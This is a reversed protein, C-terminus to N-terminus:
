WYRGILAIRYSEQRFEAWNTTDAIVEDIRIKIGDGATRFNVQRWLKEAPAFSGGTPPGFGRSILLTTAPPVPAFPWFAMGDGRGPKINEPLKNIVIEIEFGGRCGGGRDIDSHRRIIRNKFGSRSDGHSPVYSIRGGVRDDVRNRAVEIERL